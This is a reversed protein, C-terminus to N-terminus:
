HVELASGFRYTGLENAFSCVVSESGIVCCRGLRGFRENLLRTIELIELHAFCRFWVRLLPCHVGSQEQSFSSEPEVGSRAASVDLCLARTRLQDSNSM